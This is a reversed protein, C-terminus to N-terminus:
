RTPRPAYQRQQCLRPRALCGFAWACLVHSVFQRADDRLIEALKKRRVAQMPSMHRGDTVCQVARQARQRSFTDERYRESAGDAVVRAVFIKCRQGSRTSSM